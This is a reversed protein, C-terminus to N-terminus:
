RQGLRKNQFISPNWKGFLKEKSKPIAVITDYIGFKDTYDRNLNKVEVSSGVRYVNYPILSVANGIALDEAPSHSELLLVPEANKICKKMGELAYVGGGEIDMKIFDPYFGKEEFYDDLVIGKVEIKGCEQGAWSRDLSSMYHTKSLFIDLNGNSNSIAAEVLTLNNSLKNLKVTEKLREFTQPIPEFLFVRGNIGVKSSLFRSFYGINAGIDCVVMGEKVFLDFVEFTNPEHIGLMMDINLNDDYRFKFGSNKGIYIKNIGRFGLIRRILFKLITKM